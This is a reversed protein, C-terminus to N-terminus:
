KVVRGQNIGVRSDHPLSADVIPSFDKLTKGTFTDKGEISSENILTLTQGIQNISPRLEIQFVLEYVPLIVGVGAPVKDIQWIVEKTRENYHLESNQVKNIYNDSWNIAQPLIAWIKVNELDNSSNTIQWHVTYTTLQDVKPPIPGSNSIGTGPEYYYVKTKLDPQSNIKCILEKGIKLESISFKAPVTLTQIETLVKARFNKDNYDFIPLSERIEISFSVKDSQNPELLNLASVEAGSWTIVNERSDFFGIGRLDLTQFDFVSDQFYARLVLESLAIDTNNKFEINYNLRQGPNIKCDEEVGALGLALLLPSPSIQTIFESQSYLLFVDDKMEGVMAKLIKNEGEDGSLIGKLNITKKEGAKLLNIEWTNNTEEIPEPIASKFEFDNSYALEIRLDFVDKDTKNEYEILYNVEQDAITKESGEINIGILISSIEIRFITSNEFRSNINQPRYNLKVTLNKVDGKEGIFRVKFNERGESKRLITGLKREEQYIEKGELSFTGSPYDIILYTDNLNVRNNNEYKIVLNVEEGSAIDESVEIDIGIKAKSFSHRGWFIAGAAVLILVMVIVLLTKPLNKKSFLSILGGEKKEPPTTYVPVQEQKIEKIQFDENNNM